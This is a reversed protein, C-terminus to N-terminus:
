RPRRWFGAAQRSSGAAPDAPETRPGGGAPVPRAHTGPSPLTIGSRGTIPMLRCPTASSRSGRRRRLASAPLCALEFPLPPITRWSPSSRRRAGLADPDPRLLDQGQRLPRHDGPRRRTCPDVYAAARDSAAAYREETDIAHFVAYGLMTTSINSFALTTDGWGGDENKITRWGASGGPSGSATCLRGTRTARGPLSGHGGDRDLPRLDVVGRGIGPHDGARGASPRAM